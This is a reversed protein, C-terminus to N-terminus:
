RVEIVFTYVAQGRGPWTGELALNYRGPAPPTRLEDQGPVIERTQRFDGGGSEAPEWTATMSAPRNGGSFRMTLPVDLPAQLVSRFEVDRLEECEDDADDGWCYAALHGRQDVESVASLWMSPPREEGCAALALALVAILAVIAGRGGYAAKHPRALMAFVPLLRPM